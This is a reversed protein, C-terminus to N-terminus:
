QPTSSPSVPKQMRQIIDKGEGINLFDFFRNVEIVFALVKYILGYNGSFTLNFDNDNTIEKGDIRTLALLQRMLAVTGAEDLKDALTGLAAGIVTSSVDKGLSVQLGNDGGVLVGVAPGILKALSLQLRLGPLAPFQTVMVSKGDIEKTKTEVM